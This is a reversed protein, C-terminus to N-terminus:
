TSDAIEGPEEPALVLAGLVLQSWTEFRHPDQWLNKLEVLPTFSGHLKSVERVVIRAALQPPLELHYVLGAHVKGVSNSDDKLLGVLRARPLPQPPFRLEERLERELCAQM